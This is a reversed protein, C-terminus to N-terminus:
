VVSKRDPVGHAIGFWNIGGFRQWVVAEKPLGWGVLGTCIVATPVFQWSVWNVSELTDLWYGAIWIAINPSFTATLAYLALGHLRIPTPLFRLTMMMLIPILAGATIGQLTRLAVLLPLNVVFPAIAAIVVTAWLMVLYFRRVTFTIALWTAFPMSLLEGASYCVKLWSSEEHVVGYASRCLM